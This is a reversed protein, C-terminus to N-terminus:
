YARGGEEWMIPVNEKHAVQLLEILPLARNHVSVPEDTEDDSGDAEDDKTAADDAAIGARLMKLAQPIDASEIASPVTERRGMLKILKLAVDGFMTVDAYARTKFTILM